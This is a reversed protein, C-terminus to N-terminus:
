ANIQRKIEPISSQAALEGQLICEEVRHYDSFRIHTTQPKIVVDAGILSARVAQYQAIRITQKLVKFINPAKNSPKSSNGRNPIANVAIIFDAGMARLVDVPAPNVLGGDVLYRGDRKVVSAIVPFSGSARLGEVVSGQNIVVPEGTKIDTAVCAFPLRLDEFKLDGMIARMWNELKKGRILGTKPFGPDIILATRRRGLDIILNKIENINKGQAYLAGILAGTSTGAIMNIPIGEKELVILVGIHALSSAAGSSLALGVKRKPM